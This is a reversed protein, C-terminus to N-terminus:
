SISKATVSSRRIQGVDAIRLLRKVSTNMILPLFFVTFYSFDGLIPMDSFFISNGNRSKIM